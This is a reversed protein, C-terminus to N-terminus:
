RAWSGIHGYKGGVQIQYVANFPGVGPALSPPHLRHRYLRCVAPAGQFHLRPGAGTEANKRVPPGKEARKHLRLSGNGCLGDTGIDLFSVRYRAAGTAKILYGALPACLLGALGVAMNRSGFYRGKIREPVIDTVLTSWAPYGLQNLFGRFAVVAMLGYFMMSMHFFFPMLVLAFLFLRGLVGTSIM